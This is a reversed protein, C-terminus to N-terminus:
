LKYYNPNLRSVTSEFELIQKITFAYIDSSKDNLANNYWEATLKVSEEIGLVPKWCLEKLAKDISLSLLGAEKFKAAKQIVYKNEKQPQFHKGFQQILDLVTVSRNMKPGFNFSEGSKIDGKSLLLALKLYGSLSELVHQWPRTANPSRLEIKEGRGWEKVCDPILRQTSWDGGGIANGARVSAINAKEADKFFTHNYSKIVLESCGKSASYPDKGGIEDNERYGWVWEKNEYCKDSTILICILKRELVRIAELLNVTAIINTEFTERPEKFSVNTIPQAALHFIFEPKIEKIISTTKKYDLMDQFFHTIKDELGLMNFMSPQTPIDKSVGYVQAGMKLLWVTLWSGKFGTNGTILIRKNRFQESFM